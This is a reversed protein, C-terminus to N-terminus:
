SGGTKRAILSAVARRHNRDDEEWGEKYVLIEMDGFARRLEGPELLYGPEIDPQVQLMDATLTEMVLLGNRKLGQRYTPFLDRQLYFFNLILDFTNPPIHFNHLDAVVAMLRPHQQRAERVGVESIDVGVVALGRKILFGANSGLGMAADLAWGGTPLLGANEVLFSRPREFSYRKKERYRDNWRDADEVPPLPRV